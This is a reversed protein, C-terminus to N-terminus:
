NAPLFEAIQIAVALTVVVLRTQVPPYDLQDVQRRALHHLTLLCVAQRHRVAPFPGRTKVPKLIDIRAAVRNPFQLLVTPPLRKRNRMLGAHRCGVWIRHGSLVFQRRLNTSMDENDLRALRDLVDIKPIGGETRDVTEFELIDICITSEIRINVVRQMAHSKLNAAHIPNAVFHAM